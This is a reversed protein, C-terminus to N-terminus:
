IICLRWALLCHIHRRRCRLWRVDLRQVHRSTEMHPRGCGGLRAAALAAAQAASVKRSKLDIQEKQEQRVSALNQMTSEYEDNLVSIESELQAIKMKKATIENEGKFAKDEFSQFMELFSDNNIYYFPKKKAGARALRITVM